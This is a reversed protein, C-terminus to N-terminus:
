FHHLVKEILGRGSYSVIGILPLLLAMRKSSKTTCNLSSNEPLSEVRHNVSGGGSLAATVLGKRCKLGKNSLLPCRSCFLLFIIVPVRVAQSNMHGWLSGSFASFTIIRCAHCQSTHASIYFCYVHTNASDFCSFIVNAHLSVLLMTM